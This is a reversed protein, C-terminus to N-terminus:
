RDVEAVRIVHAPAPISPCAARLLRALISRLNFRRNASPAISRAAFVAVEEHTFPQHRLCVFQPQGDPTTQVAAVFPVKNESGRGATGGSREGGPYADDLEV